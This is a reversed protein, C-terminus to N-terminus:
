RRVIIMPPIERRYYQLIHKMEIKTSPPTENWDELVTTERGRQGTEMRADLAIHKSQGSIILICQKLFMKKYFFPM